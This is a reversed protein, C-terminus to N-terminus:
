MRWDCSIGAINGNEDAVRQVKTIKVAKLTSKASYSRPRHRTARLQAWQIFETPITPRGGVSDRRRPPEKCGEHRAAAPGRNHLMMSWRNENKSRPERFLHPDSLSLKAGFYALALPADRHDACCLRDLLRSAMRAAGSFIMSGATLIVGAAIGIIVLLFERM